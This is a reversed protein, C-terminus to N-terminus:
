NCDVLARPEPSVGARRRPQQSGLGRRQSAIGDSVFATRGAWLTPLQIPLRSAIQYGSIAATRMSVVLNLPRAVGASKCLDPLGKEVATRGASKALKRRLGSSSGSFPHPLTSCCGCRSGNRASLEPSRLRIFENKLNCDALGRELRCRPGIRLSSIGSRAALRTSPQPLQLLFPTKTM